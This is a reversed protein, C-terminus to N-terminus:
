CQRARPRVQDPGLRAAAGGAALCGRRTARGSLWGVLEGSTLGPKLGGATRELFRRLILTLQFAHEAFRGQGPLDCGACRRSNRSRRPWRIARRFRRRTAGGGPTPSACGAVLAVILAIAVLAVIVWRWPVREWWPAALPGRVPRLARMATPPPEDGPAGRDRVVPLRTRRPAGRGAARLSMGPCRGHGLTFSRCGRKSARRTSHRGHGRIRTIRRFRAGARARRRGAPHDLARTQAHPLSCGAATNADRVSRRATRAGREAHPWRRRRPRGRARRHQVGAGAARLPAALAAPRARRSM